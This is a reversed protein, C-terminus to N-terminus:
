NIRTFLRLQFAPTGSGLDPQMSGTPTIRIHTVAPDAGNADAVPVYSFDVGDTSFSYCDTTSALSTFNCTLSTAPSGDTYEIPGSGPAGIDNVVIALGPPLQETVVVSGTDPPANGSNSVAIRYEVSADPVSFDDFTGTTSLRTKSIQLDAILNAHFPRSFAILGAREAEAASLSRENDQDRDEDVRLTITSANVSCYRLWGGDPNNRSLKKAVVVATGSTQGFGTSFCGNDWGRITAGSTM